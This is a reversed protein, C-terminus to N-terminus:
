NKQNTSAVAFYRSTAVEFKVAVDALREAFPMGTYDEWSPAGVVQLRPDNRWAEEVNTLTATRSPNNAGNIEEWTAGDVAEAAVRNMVIVDNLGDAADEVDRPLM